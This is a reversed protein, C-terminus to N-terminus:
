APNTIAEQEIWVGSVAIQRLLDPCSTSESKNSALFKQLRRQEKPPLPIGTPAYEHHTSVDMHSSQINIGTRSILSDLIRVGYLDLDGQHEFKAQPCCESLKRLFSIVARNAHGETYVLLTDRESELEVTLDLFSTENEVTVVKRLPNAFRLEAGDLHRASFWVPQRQEAAESPWRWVGSARVIEFRGFVMVLVSTLNETIGILNLVKAHRLRSPLDRTMEALGSDYEVLDRALDRWIRNGPRLWHTDGAIQRSLHIVHEIRDTQRHLEDALSLLRFYTQLTDAFSGAAWKRCRYWYRGKDKDLNSLERRAVAGALGPSDIYLRLCSRLEASREQKAQKRNQFAHGVADALVDVFGDIGASSAEWKAFHLKTSRGHNAPRVFDGSFLSLLARHNADDYPVTLTKSMQGNSEARKLILQAMARAAEGSDLWGRVSVVHKDSTNM